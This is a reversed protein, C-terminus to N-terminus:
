RQYISEWICRGHCVESLLLGAVMQRATTTAHTDPRIIEKTLDSRSADLFFEFCRCRYYVEERIQRNQVQLLPPNKATLLRGQSAGKLEDVM